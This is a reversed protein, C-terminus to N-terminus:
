NEQQKAHYTIRVVDDTTIVPMDVIQGKKDIIEALMSRGDKHFELITAEKGNKLLVVDFQNIQM